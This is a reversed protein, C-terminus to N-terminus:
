GATASFRELLKPSYSNSTVRSPIVESSGKKSMSSIGSLACSTTSPDEKARFYPSFVPSSNVTVSPSLSRSYPKLTAPTVSYQGEWMIKMSM